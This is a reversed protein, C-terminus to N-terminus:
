GGPFRSRAPVVLPVSDSEPRSEQRHRHHTELIGRGDPSPRHAPFIACELTGRFFVKRGNIVFQTGSTGIERLGFSVTRSGAPDGDVSATVRHLTPHFEDWTPAEPGLDHDVSFTTRPGRLSVVRVRPPPGPANEAMAFELRAIVDRHRGTANGITCRVTISHGNRPFVQLDEVWVPPM